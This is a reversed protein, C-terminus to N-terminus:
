NLASGQKYAAFSLNWDGYGNTLTMQRDTGVVEVVDGRRSLNYLWAADETSMGVCGHSVNAEGQVSESWPAAHLFEGSYTVRMAYEVNALNYYEPDNRDIGITAANMRKRRHKAIIVKTGSRTTFGEKGASIPITRLLEGNRYVKMQHAPVNIKSVMADGISFSVERDMQGFIGNGAPVSNIDAHVTVDTGAEWYTKPRWHVEHDSIWHWAGAQKPTTEVSLHREISAHDTVAIDFQIIVPMGVGVTEGALPAISAYTQEDLTLDDTRFRTKSTKPLGEADTARALVTYRLGPELRETATWVTRAPNMRGRLRGDDALEGGRVTVRVNEFTGQRVRIRVTEDVRVHRAGDRVNTKISAESVPPPPPTSPTDVVAPVDEAHDALSSTCGAAATSLAVVSALASSTRRLTRARSSRAHRVLM